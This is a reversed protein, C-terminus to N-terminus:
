SKRIRSRRTLQITMPSLENQLYSEILFYLLEKRTVEKHFAIRQFLRHLAPPVKFGLDKDIRDERKMRGEHDAFLKILEEDM